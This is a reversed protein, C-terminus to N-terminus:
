PKRFARSLRWLFAVGVTLQFIAAVTVSYTYPEHATVSPLGAGCPLFVSTAVPAFLGQLGGLSLTATVLFLTRHSISRWCLASALVAMIVPLFILIVLLSENV